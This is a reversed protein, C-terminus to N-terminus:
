LEEKKLYLRGKYIAYAIVLSCAFILSLIFSLIMMMKTNPFVYGIPIIAKDLPTVVPLDSAEDIGEQYKQTELYANVQVLVKQERVLSTYERILSPVQPLPVSFDDSGTIGGRQIRSYQSKLKNFQEKYPQVMPSNADYEQLKLNLEIEAKALDAGITTVSGMIAETQKELELVKHKKQFDELRADVSDLDHKKIALMREIYIRKRKAKSTNKLRSLSDIAMITANAIESSVKAAELVEDLSSFYDTKVNVTLNILGSRNMKYNLTKNIKALTLEDHVEKFLPHSLLNLKNAVIVTLERSKIYDALLLSKTNQGAEGFSMGSTGALSQIFGSLGGGTNEDPPLISAYAQFERPCIMSYIFTVAMLGLTFIIIFKKHYRFLKLVNILSFEQKFEM